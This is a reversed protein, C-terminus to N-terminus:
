LPTKFGMARIVCWGARGEFIGLPGVGALLGVFLWWWSSVLVGSLVLACLVLGACLTMIGGVLRVVKGRADINCQLIGAGDSKKMRM